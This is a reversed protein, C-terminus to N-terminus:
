ISVMQIADMTGVKEQVIPINLKLFKKFLSSLQCTHQFHDIGSKTKITRLKLYCVNKNRRKNGKQLNSYKMEKNKRSISCM